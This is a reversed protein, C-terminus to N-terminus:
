SLDRLVEAAGREGAVIAGEMYGKWEYATETGVFHIKDVPTRLAHGYKGLVGPQMVPSPAGQCWLEKVWEHEVTESAEYVKRAHAPGAMRALHDLIAVRRARRSLISWKRGADGVLFCTISYQGDQETSTDRTFTVPGIFSIFAGNLGIDRWWPYSYIVVMKAYYGLTTSESLALKAEPLTPTFSITYYLSTPISVIVKQCHFTQGRQTTVVCDTPGQQISMVADGLRISGPSLENALKTSIKQM